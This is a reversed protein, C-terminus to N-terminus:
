SVKMVQLNRAILYGKKNIFGVCACESYTVTCNRIAEWTNRRGGAMILSEVRGHIQIM